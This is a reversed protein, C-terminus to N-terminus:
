DRWKSVETSRSFVERLTIANTQRDFLVEAIESVRRTADAELRCHVVLHISAGVAQKVFHSTINPGALLPLTCLKDVAEVANNAHITSIGPLGSNLAILLDLSEAERVEGVILRSPRMRLAEKVLRRLSVEGIGEANASRTQLAVWDVSNSRIEFTEEVSVIRETIELEAVLACLLTTKGAQTAGSVLINKGKRVAESLYEAEDISLSGLSVLEHLRLIRNGFKRINVSWFQRTVDPIVVHLRSGDPLSADVFPMSRDLRRGSFRLMREIVTRLQESSLEVEHRSTSGHKATFVENPRNVWIEEIDVDDLFPQLAGFATLEHIAATRLAQEEAAPALGSEILLDLEISLAEAPSVTASQVARTRAGAVADQLIGM